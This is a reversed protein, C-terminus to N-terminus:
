YEGLFDNVYENGMRNLTRVTDLIASLNERALSQYNGYDGSPGKSLAYSTAKNIIYSDCFAPFMFNDNDNSLDSLTSIYILEINFNDRFIPSFIIKMQPSTSSTDLYVDFFIRSPNSITVESSLGYIFEENSRDLPYFIVDNYGADTIRLSKVAAFDSPLNVESDGNSVSLPISKIFFDSKVSRVANYLDRQAQNLYRNLETDTWFSEETEGINSRVANRAELLNM